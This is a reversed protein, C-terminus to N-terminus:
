RLNNGVQLALADPWQHDGFFQDSYNDCCGTTGEGICSARLFYAACARWFINTERINPTKFFRFFLLATARSPCSCEGFFLVECCLLQFQGQM